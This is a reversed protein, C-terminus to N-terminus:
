REKSTDIEIQKTGLRSYKKTNTITVLDGNVGKFRKYLPVFYFNNDAFVVISNRDSLEDIRTVEYVKGSIIQNDDLLSINKYKNILKAVVPFRKIAKYYTFFRENITTDHDSYDLMGLKGLMDIDDKGICAINVSRMNTEFIEALTIAQSNTTTQQMESLSFHDRMYQQLYKRFDVRMMNKDFMFYKDSELVFHIHPHATNYHVAFYTNTNYDKTYLSLYKDAARALEKYEEPALKYKPSIIFRYQIAVSELNNKNAAEAQPKSGDLGAGEREIYKRHAKIGTKDTSFGAKVICTTLRKYSGSSGSGRSSRNGLYLYNKSKHANLIKDIETSLSYRKLNVSKVHHKKFANKNKTPM